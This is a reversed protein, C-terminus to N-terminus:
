RGRRTLVGWCTMCTGQRVWEQEPRDHLDAARAEAGCYATVPCDPAADLATAAFAHRGSSIPRWVYTLGHQRPM